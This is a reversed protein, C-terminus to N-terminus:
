TASARRRRMGRAIQELQDDSLLRAAMPLLEGDEREASDRCCQIFSEIEHVPLASTRGVAVDQLAPQLRLWLRQLAGHGAALAGGIGRLCVADSGAMSEVLAPVLDEEEDAHHLPLVQDFFRLLRGTVDLAQADCGCEGLYLALRRLSACHQMLRDNCSQLAELPPESGAPPEPIDAFAQTM